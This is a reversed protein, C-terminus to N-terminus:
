LLENFQSKFPVFGKAYHIFHGCAYLGVKRIVIREESFGGSCTLCQGHIYSIATDLDDQIIQFEDNSFKHSTMSMLPTYTKNMEENFHGSLLINNTKWDSQSSSKVRSIEIATFM